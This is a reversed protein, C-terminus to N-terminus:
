PAPATPAYSANDGLVRKGKLIEGLLPEGAKRLDVLDVVPRGVEEAIADILASKASVDLTADTLVALDM